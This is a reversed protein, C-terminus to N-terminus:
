SVARASEPESAIPAEAEIWFGEIRAEKEILHARLGEFLPRYNYFPVSPWLHHVLHLNQGLLLFDGAKWDSARSNNYRGTGEFPAHPAWQLFVALLFAGIFSPALFLAFLDWGYGFYICIPIMSQMLHVAIWHMRYERKSLNKRANGYDAGPIREVIFYPIIYLTAALFTVGVLRTFSGGVLMKDPDDPGNVHSHHLLHTKRMIPFTNFLTTSGWWGAVLHMAEAFRGRGFNKHISEHVPTYWWFAIVGLLPAAIWYSVWGYFAAFALSNQAVILAFVLGISPWAFKPTLSFAFAKEEKPSM